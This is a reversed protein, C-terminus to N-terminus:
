YFGRDPRHRHCQGYHDGATTTTRVSIRSIGCEVPFSTALIYNNGTGNAAGSMGGRYEGQGTVAWTVTNQQTPCRHGNADVVECDVLAFDSGTAQLGAPSVHPTLRLATATGATSISDAAKQVHAKTYGVAKITGAAYPVNLWTFLFKWTPGRMGRSVNNVFLEVSDCNSVVWLSDITTPTPYTWHGVIYVDKNDVEIWGDWMVKFAGYSDKPLRMGDVVGSRRYAEQSRAFTTGDCMEIKVGGANVRTGAGTAYGPRETWYEWWRHVEEEIYKDQNM